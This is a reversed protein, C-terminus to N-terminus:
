SHSLILKVSGLFRLFIVSRIFIDSLSKCIILRRVKSLAHLFTSDLKSAGSFNSEKEGFMDLLGLSEYGFKDASVSLGTGFMDITLLQSTQFLFFIGVGNLIPYHRSCATCKLLSNIVIGNDSEIKNVEFDGFCDVCQLSVVDTVLM